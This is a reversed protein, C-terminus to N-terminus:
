LQQVTQMVVRSGLSHAVLSISPRQPLNDNIFKALEVASDDAKNTEFPYSLPGIASDGPWLVAVVAGDGVAPLLQALNQLEAAGDSRSVNFGHVLFVVEQCQQLIDMTPTALTLRAPVVAGDVDASRLDLIFVFM